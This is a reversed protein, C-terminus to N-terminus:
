TRRLFLGFLIAVFIIPVIGHTILSTTFSAAPLSMFLATLFAGLFVPLSRDPLSRFALLSFDLLLLLLLSIIWGCYLGFATQFDFLFATGMSISEIADPNFYLGVLNPLNVHDIGFVVALPRIVSISLFEHNQAYINSWIGTEFPSVFTRYFIGGSFYSLITSLSLGAGERMVTQATALIMAFSGLIGILFAGRQIGKTLLYIIGVVLLLGAANARAGPLMAFIIVLVIMTAKLIKLGWWKTRMLFLTGVLLPAFVKLYFSFSYRLLPDAVLKLSEERAIASLEPTFFIAYLGTKHFPVTLLYYALVFFSVIGFALLIKKYERNAIVSSHYATKCRHWYSEALRNMQPTCMCWLPLVGFFLISLIRFEKAHILYVNIENGTFAAVFGIQFLISLGVWYSPRILLYPLRLTVAFYGAAVCIFLVKILFATIDM